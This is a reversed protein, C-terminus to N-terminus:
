SHEIIWNLLDKDSVSGDALGLRLEILEEDTCLIEIGNTELFVMM